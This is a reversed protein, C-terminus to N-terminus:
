SWRTACGGDEGCPGWACPTERWSRAFGGHKIVRFATAATTVGRHAAVRVVLGSVSPMAGRRGPTRGPAARRRRRDGPPLPRNM